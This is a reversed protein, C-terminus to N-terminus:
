GVLPALAIRARELRQTVSDQSAALAAELVRGTEGLRLSLRQIPESAIVGLRLADLYQRQIDDLEAAIGDLSASVESMVGEPLATRVRDFHTRWEGFVRAAEELTILEPDTELPPPVLLPTVATHYAIIDDLKHAADLAETAAESASARLEASAPPLEAAYQFLARAQDDVMLLITTARTLDQDSGLSANLEVLGQLGEELDTAAAEVRALAQAAAAEPQHYLWLAVASLGTALVTLTLAM